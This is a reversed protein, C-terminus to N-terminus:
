LIGITLLDFVRSLEQAFSFGECGCGFTTSGSEMSTSFNTSTLEAHRNQDADRISRHLGTREFYTSHLFGHLICLKYVERPGCGM